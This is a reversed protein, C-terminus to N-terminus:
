CLSLGAANKIPQERQEESRQATVELMRDESPSRMLGGIVTRNVAGKLLPETPTVIKRLPM